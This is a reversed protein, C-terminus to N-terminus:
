RCLRIESIRPTQRGQEATISVTLTGSLGEPLQIEAQGQRDLHFTGLAQEGVTVTFGERDAFGKLRLTKAEDTKMSYSFAGRSRRWHIGEDAGNWSGNGSFFHDSESQQEGCFIKDVTKAELEMKAKEQAAIEAQKQAWEQQTFLPFYIQYRCEHLQYFPQLTMGEFGPLTVGSLRFQMPKGNVPALHTLIDHASGIIAPMQTAPIKPGNAIHGGRSDDAYMGDQRDTGTKAALVIPGYLFSYQPKGDPTTM